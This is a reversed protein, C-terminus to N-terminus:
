PITLTASLRTSVTGIVPTVLLLTAVVVICIRLIGLGIGTFAWGKGKQEPHRRIQVLGIIGLIIGAIWALGGIGNCLSTITQDGGALGLGIGQAAISGIGCAAAAIANGNNKKVPQEMLPNPPLPAEM